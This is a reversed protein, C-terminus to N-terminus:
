DGPLRLSPQTSLFRVLTREFGAPAGTQGDTGLIVYEDPRETRIYTSCIEQEGTGQGFLDRLAVEVAPPVDGSFAYESGSGDTCVSGDARLSFPTTVTVSVAPDAALLLTYVNIMRNGQLSFTAVAQCNPASGRPEICEYPTAAIERLLQRIPVVEGAAGTPATVPQSPVCAALTIAAVGSTIITKLM